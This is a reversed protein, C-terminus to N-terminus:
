DAPSRTWVSRTGDSEIIVLQDDALEYTARYVPAIQLPLLSALPRIARYVRAPEPDLVISGCRASWGVIEPKGETPWRPSTETKRCRGDPELVLKITWEKESIPGQRWIGALRQEEASLGTAFWGWVLGFAVLALAVLVFHSRVM